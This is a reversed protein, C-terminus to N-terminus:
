SAAEQQSREKHGAAANQAAENIRTVSGYELADPGHRSIVALFGTIQWDDPRLALVPRGLDDFKPKQEKDRKHVLHNVEHDILAKKNASSLTKWVPGDLEILADHDVYTRNKRSIVRITAYAPAGHLMLSPEEEDDSNFKTRVTVAIKVKGDILSPFTEHLVQNLLSIIENNAPEYIISM